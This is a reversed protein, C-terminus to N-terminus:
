SSSGGSEGGSGSGSSGGSEGGSGSGSSGGSSGGSGSGDSGSGSSGGSSGGSGSGDSGSGSSGFIRGTLAGIESNAFQTFETSTTSTLTTLATILATLANQVDTQLNTTQTTFFTVFNNKNAQLANTIATIAASPLTGPLRQFVAMQKTFLDNGAITIIPQTNSFASTVQSAFLGSTVLSMLDLYCMTNVRALLDGIVKQANARITGALSTAEAADLAALDAAMNSPVTVGLTELQEILPEYDASPYSPAFGDIQSLIRTLFLVVAKKYQDEYNKLFEFIREGMNIIPTKLEYDCNLPVPRCPPSCESSVCSSYTSSDDCYSSGFSCSDEYRRHHRRRRPKCDSSSSSHSSSEDHVDSSMGDGCLKRVDNKFRRGLLNNKEFYRTGEPCMQCNGRRNESALVASFSVLGLLLSLKMM